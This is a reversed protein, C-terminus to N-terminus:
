RTPTTARVKSRARENREVAALYRPNRIPFRREHARPRPGRRVFSRCARGFRGRVALHRARPARPWRRWVGCALVGAGRPPRRVRWRPGVGDLARPRIFIPNSEPSPDPGSGWRSAVVMAGSLIFYILIGPLSLPFFFCAFIRGTGTESARERERPTHLLLLVPPSRPLRPAAPPRRSAVRSWKRSCEVLLELYSCSFLIRDQEDRAQSQEPTSYQQQQHRPHSRPAPASGLPNRPNQSSPADSRREPLTYSAASGRDQSGGSRRQDAARLQPKKRPASSNPL